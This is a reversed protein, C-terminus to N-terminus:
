RRLRRVVGSMMALKPALAADPPHAEKPPQGMGVRAHRSIAIALDAFDGSLGNTIRIVAETTTHVIKMAM